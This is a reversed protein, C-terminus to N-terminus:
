LHLWLHPYFRQPTFVKLSASLRTPQFCLYTGKLTWSPVRCGSSFVFLTSLYPHSGRLLSFPASLIEFQQLSPADPGRFQSATTIPLRLVTQMQFWKVAYASCSAFAWKRSFNGFFFDDCSAETFLHLTYLVSFLITFTLFPVLM